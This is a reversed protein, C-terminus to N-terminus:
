IDYQSVEEEENDTIDNTQIRTETANVHLFQSYRSGEKFGDLSDAM